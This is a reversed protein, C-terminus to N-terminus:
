RTVKIVKANRDADVLADDHSGKVFVRFGPKGSMFRYLRVHTAAGDAIGARKEAAEVLEPVADLRLEELPYLEKRFMSPSTVSVPTPEGWSGNRFAYENARRPDKPDQVEAKIWGPFVMVDTVMVRGGVKEKLAVLAEKAATGSFFPRAVGSSPPQAPTPEVTPAPPPASPEPRVERKKCALLAASFLVVSIALTNRSGM